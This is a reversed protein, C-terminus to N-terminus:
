EFAPESVNGHPRTQNTSHVRNIRVERDILRPALHPVSSANNRGGIKTESTWEKEFIIHRKATCSEVLRVVLCGVSESM